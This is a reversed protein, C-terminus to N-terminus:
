FLRPGRGGEHPITVGAARAEASLRSNPGHDRYDYVVVVGPKPTPRKFLEKSGVLLALVGTKSRRVEDLLEPEPARPAELALDEGVVRVRVFAAKLAALIERATM